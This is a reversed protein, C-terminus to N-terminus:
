TVANTAIKTVTVANAVIKGETVANTAIKTVTVANAVIKDETVANTAIKGESISSDPIQTASLPGKASSVQRQDEFKDGPNGPIKGGQPKIRTLLVKPDAINTVVELKATEQTRTFGQDKGSITQPAVLQDDGYSIAVYIDANSLIAPDITPSIDQELWIERGQKDIAHGGSVSISRDGTKTVELGSTVGPTHCEQNHLRRMERHYTQEDQFDKEDLFQYKFYNLRKNVNDAM